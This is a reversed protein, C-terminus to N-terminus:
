FSGRRGIFGTVALELASGSSALTSGILSPPLVETVVYKLLSFFHQVAAALSSSHSLFLEASMLTMSSPPPPPAGPSLALIGSYVITFVKTLCATGTCGVSTWLPASMWRCGPDWALASAHGFSATVRHLAQVPATQEQLAASQPFSGHQLFKHLVATCPFHGHQLEHLVTKHPLFGMSSCSYLTLLFSRCLRSSSVVVGM